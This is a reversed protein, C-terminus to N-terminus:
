RGCTCIDDGLTPPRMFTLGYCKLDLSEAETSVHTFMREDFEITGVKNTFLGEAIGSDWSSHYRGNQVISDRVITPTQYVTASADYSDKWELSTLDFIVLGQAWSEKKLKASESRSHGRWYRGDAKRGRNRVYPLEPVRFSEIWNKALPLLYRYFISM